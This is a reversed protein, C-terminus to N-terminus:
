GGRLYREVDVRGYIEQQLREAKDKEQKRAARMEKASLSKKESKDKEQDHGQKSQDGVKQGKGNVPPIAAGIGLTDDKAAVKIPFRMGVGQRGLGTRADPDWGQSALTRLGMRSRDLHSPPHSHQISVQHALSANHDALSSIIPLLCINCLLQQQQGDDGVHDGTTVEAAETHSASKLGDPNKTQSALVVSAYLDGIAAAAASKRAAASSATASTLDDEKAAVFEVRKRKLGAGFPKKRHLPLDDYDDPADDHGGHDESNRPRPM